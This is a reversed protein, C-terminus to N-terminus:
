ASYDDLLVRLREFIGPQLTDSIAVLRKGYVALIRETVLVSPNVLGREVKSLYPVSVQALNAVEGLSKKRKGRMKRLEFVISTM